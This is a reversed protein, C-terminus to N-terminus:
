GRRAGSPGDARTPRTCGSAPSPWSSTPTSARAAWSPATSTPSPWSPRRRQQGEGLRRLPRASRRGPRRLVARGAADRIAGCVEQADDPTAVEGTGIAWVPEYAIVLTRAKDPPLGALAATSSRWPTSSRPARRASRSARASACSRRSATATPRRSRPRSWRTPRARPVRRRESHGVTVFTCGSSRSCPGASRAPTPARTPPPSTRRATSSTSSTATSWPRCRASTPSRRFCRSRARRRPRRRHARLRAEAGARDGRPPQPEDELQGGHAPSSGAM